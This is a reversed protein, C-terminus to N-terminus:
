CGGASGVTSSGLLFEGFFWPEDKWRHSPLLRENLAEARDFAEVAYGPLVASRRPAQKSRDWATAWRSM